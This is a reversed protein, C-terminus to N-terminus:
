LSAMADDLAAARAEWSDHAVTARRRSNNMSDARARRIADAYLEASCAVEILGDFPALAPFPTSAIPTGAALYERLKLPNCARIQPCDRFPLLSVTWHQVYSPLEHHARQGYLRVNPLKRLAGVDTRIEGIFAFMWDPMGAAVDAILEVDIWASLSGYFGAIPRDSPLDAARPAPHQFLDLDTGHPLLLTRERPFRQALEESAAVILDARGVLEREMARVPEHDVGALSGFDDGCYYVVAREDLSGILPAASPLSTWLIPSRVKRRKMACRVQRGLLRRNLAAAISSGPWSVALPPLISVSAPPALATATARPRVLLKDIVRLLDRATPRPRRLGISNVWVIKRDAALRRILHQTSSPHRGWDEGFVVMDHPANM